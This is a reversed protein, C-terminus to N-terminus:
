RRGKGRRAPKSYCDTHVRRGAHLLTLRHRHRDFHDVPLEDSRQFPVACFAVSVSGIWIDGLLAKVVPMM